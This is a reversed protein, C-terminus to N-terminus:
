LKCCWKICDGLTKLMVKNTLGEQRHTPTLCCVRGAGFERAWGAECKGDVSEADMFVLGSEINLKVFYHEDLVEFTDNLSIGNSNKRPIYRVSKNESPHHLFYGGLMEVYAGAEDYCSLGSHSAPQARSNPAPLTQ